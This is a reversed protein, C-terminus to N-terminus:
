NQGLSKNRALGSELGAYNELLDEERAAIAATRMARVTSILKPKRLKTQMASSELLPSRRPPRKPRRPEATCTTFSVPESLASDEATTGTPATSAMASCAGAAECM